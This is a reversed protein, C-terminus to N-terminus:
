FKVSLPKMRAPTSRLAFSRSHGANEPDVIWIHFEDTCLVRLFATSVCSSKTRVFCYTCVTSLGVFSLTFDLDCIRESFTWLCDISYCYCYSVIRIFVRNAKGKGRWVASTGTCATYHRGSGPISSPPASHETLVSLDAISQKRGPFSM